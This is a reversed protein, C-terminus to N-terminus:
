VLLIHESNANAVVQKEGWWVRGWMECVYVYVCVCVCVCVCVTFFLAFLFSQLLPSTEGSLIYITREKIFRQNHHYSPSVWTNTM